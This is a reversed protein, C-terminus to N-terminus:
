SQVLMRSPHAERFYVLLDFREAPVCRLYFQDAGEVAVMRAHRVPQEARLAPVATPVIAYCDLDLQDLLHEMSGPPPPPCPHPRWDGPGGASQSSANYAGRGFAVYAVQYDPGFRARLHSGARWSELWLHHNHAWLVTKTDPGFRDLQALTNEAMHRDGLQWRQEAPVRGSWVELWQPFTGALLAIWRGSPSNTDLPAPATTRWTALAAEVWPLDRLRGASEEALRRWEAPAAIGADDLLRLALLLGRRSQATTGAVRVQGNTAHGTNWERLWVFLDRVEETRWPHLEGGMPLTDSAGTVYRDYPDMEAPGCEFLVLRFGRQRVLARILRCKFQFSEHDGHTAEGLGVLRANALRELLPVLDDDSLGPGVGALPVAEARLAALAKLGGVDAM